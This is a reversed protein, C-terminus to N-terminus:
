DLASGQIAISHMYGICYYLQVSCSTYVTLRQGTQSIVADSWKLGCRVVYSRMSKRDEQKINTHAQPFINHLLSAKIRTRLRTNTESGSWEWVRSLIAAHLFSTVTRAGVLRGKLFLFVRVLSNIVNSM